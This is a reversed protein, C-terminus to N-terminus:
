RNAQIRSSPNDFNIVSLVLLQKRHGTILNTGNIVLNHICTTKKDREAVISIIILSFVFVITQRYM